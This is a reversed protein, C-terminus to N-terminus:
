SAHKMIDSIQQRGYAADDHAAASCMCTGIHELQVSSVEIQVAIQEVVLGHCMQSILYFVAAAEHRAHSRPDTQEALCPRVRGHGPSSPQLPPWFPRYWNVLAKESDINPETKHWRACLAWAQCGSSPMSALSRKSLWCGQVNCWLVQLDRLSPISPITPYTMWAQLQRVHVADFLQLRSSASPIPGGAPSYRIVIM